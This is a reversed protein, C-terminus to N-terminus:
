PQLGVLNELLFKGQNHRPNDSDNRVDLMMEFIEDNINQGNWLDFKTDGNLVCQTDIGYRTWMYDSLVGYKTKNGDNWIVYYRQAPVDRSSSPSQSYDYLTHKFLEKKYIWFPGKRNLRKMWAQVDQDSVKLTEKIIDWGKQINDELLTYHALKKISDYM